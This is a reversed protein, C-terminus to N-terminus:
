LEGPQIANDTSYIPVVGNPAISPAQREGHQVANLTQSDQKALALRVARIFPPDNSGALLQKASRASAIPDPTITRATGSIISASAGTLMAVASSSVAAYMQWNGVKRKWAKQLTSQHQTSLYAELRRDLNSKRRAGM